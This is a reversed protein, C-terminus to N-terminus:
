LFSWGPAGDRCYEYPVPNQVEVLGVTAEGDCIARVLHNDYGAIRVREAPDTLDHVAGAVVGGGIDMGQYVNGEPTGTGDPGAYMGNRMYIVKDDIQEYAITKVEGSGLQNEVLGGIFHHTEPPGAGPREDGLKWLLRGGWIAWDGFEVWQGFHSWRRSPQAHGPGGVFNREGWHHDRSGLTTGATLTWQHDRIRVWGEIRGFSEYGAASPVLRGGINVGPLSVSVSPFSQFVPRATDRWYLEFALGYENDALTLRWQRFPEVPEFTIPGCSIEARDEALYRHARVSIHRRDHNVAVYSEVTGLNPYFGMGTMLLHEGSRDQATFWYREYARADTTGV